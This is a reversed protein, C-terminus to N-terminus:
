HHHQEDELRLNQSNIPNRDVSDQNTTTDQLNIPNRDVSDQNPTTDQSNIPNLNVSGQNTTIDQYMSRTVAVTFMTANGVLNTPNGAPKGALDRILKFVAKRLPQNLILYVIPTDGSFIINPQFNIKLKLMKLPSLM